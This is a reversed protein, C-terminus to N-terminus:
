DKSTSPAPLDLELLCAALSKGHADLSLSRTVGGDLADHLVFKLAHLSPVEYRLIPGVPLDPFHARVRDPTLHTRLHPFHSPDYAIVSIDATSGKDGSRAHALEHLRM